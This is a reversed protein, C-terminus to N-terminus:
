SVVRKVTHQEVDKICLKINEHGIDLWSATICVININREEVGIREKYTIYLSSNKEKFQKSECCNSWKLMQVVEEHIGITTKNSLVISSDIYM